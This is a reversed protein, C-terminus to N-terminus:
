VSLRFLSRVKLTLYLSRRVPQKIKFLLLCLPLIQIVYVIKPAWYQPSLFPSLIKELRNVFGLHGFLGAWVMNGGEPVSAPPYSNSAKKVLLIINQIDDQIFFDLFLFFQIIMSNKCNYHCLHYCLQRFVCSKLFHNIFVRHRKSSDDSGTTYSWKFCTYINFIEPVLNM